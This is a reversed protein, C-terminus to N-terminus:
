GSFLSGTLTGNSASATFLSRPVSIESSSISDEYCYVKASDYHGKMYAHLNKSNQLVPPLPHCWSIISGTDASRFASVVKDTQQQPLCRQYDALWFWFLLLGTLIITLLSLFAILFHRYFASRILYRKKHFHTHTNIRRRQTM